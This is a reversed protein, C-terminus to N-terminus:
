SERMVRQSSVPMELADIPPPTATLVATAGLVCVAFVLEAIMVGRIRAVGGRSLLRPTAVRWNYAGAAAVLVVLGLKLMLIRGYLSTWLASVSRMELWSSVLGSALIAAVCVLALRSFTTVIGRVLRARAEADISDTSPIGAFAVYALTGLWGGVALLHVADMGVALVVPSAAAPHGSIAASLALTLIVLGGVLEVSSVRGNRRLTTPRIAIGLTAVTAVVQATWGHGWATGDLLPSITTADLTVEGFVARIQAILRLMAAVLLLAASGIAGFRTSALARELAGSADRDTYHRSVTPVVGVQFVWAGVVGLIGVYTFWRIATYAPSRADFEGPVIWEPNSGPTPGVGITDPNATAPRTTDAAAALVTFHFEGRITHSDRSTVSWQVRYTGADLGSPVDAAIASGTTDAARVPELPISASDADLLVLRSLPLEVAQTFDLRITRPPTALTDYAAPDSSRLAVHMPARWVAAAASPASPAIHVVVACVCLALWPVVPLVSRRLIGAPRRNV